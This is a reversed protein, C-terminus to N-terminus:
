KPDELSTIARFQPYVTDITQYDKKSVEIRKTVHTFLNSGQLYQLEEEKFFLRMQSSKRLCMMIHSSLTPTQDM